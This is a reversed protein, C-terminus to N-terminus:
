WSGESELQYLLKEATKLDTVKGHYVHTNKPGHWNEVEKRLETIRRKCTAKSPESMVYKAVPNSM